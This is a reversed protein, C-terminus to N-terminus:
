LTRYRRLWGIMALGVSGLIFAGPSPVVDIIEYGIEEMRGQNNSIAFSGLDLPGENEENEVNIWEITDAPLWSIGIPHHDDSYVSCLFYESVSDKNEDELLTPVGIDKHGDPRSIKKAHTFIASANFDSSSSGGQPTKYLPEALPFRSDPISFKSLGSSTPDQVPCAITAIATEIFSFIILFSIGFVWTKM